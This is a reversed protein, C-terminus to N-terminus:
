RPGRELQIILDESPTAVSRDWSLYGPKDVRIRVRHDVSTDKFSFRFNGNNESVYGSPNGGVSIDAGMIPLNTALDVVRGAITVDKGNPAPKKDFWAPGFQLVAVVIAVLASIVATSLVIEQKTPM